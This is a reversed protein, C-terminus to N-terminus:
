ISNIPIANTCLVMCTELICSLLIYACQVTFGSGWAFDREAGLGGRQGGGGLGLVGKRQSDGFAICKKFIM